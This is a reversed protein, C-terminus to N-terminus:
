GEKVIWEWVPTVKITVDEHVITESQLATLIYVNDCKTSKAAIVAGNIERRRTKQNEIDYAVQYIGVVRNGDWVVFDAEM